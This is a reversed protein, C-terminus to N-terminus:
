GDEWPSAQRSDGTQAVRHRQREGDVARRMRRLHEKLLQEAQHADHNKIAELIRRHRELSVAKSQELKMHVYIGRRFLDAFSHMMRVFIPNRTIKSIQLHFNIDAELGDNGSTVDYQMQALIAELEAIDQASAKQAAVRAIVPEIAERAEVLYSRLRSSVAMPSFDGLSQLDALSLGSSIFTGRGPTRTIIGLVELVQLAERISTRSVGLEQALEPETPLKDGPALEGSEILRRIQGIINEYVRVDRIKRFM